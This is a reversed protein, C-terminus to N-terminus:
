GARAKTFVAEEQDHGERKQECPSHCVNDNDRDADTQFGQEDMHAPGLVMDQEKYNKHFEKKGDWLAAQFVVGNKGGVPRVRVKQMAEKSKQGSVVIHLLEENLISELLTKLEEM